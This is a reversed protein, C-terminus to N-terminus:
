SNKIGAVSHFGRLPEHLDLSVQRLALLDYPDLFGQIVLMVDASSLCRASSSEHTVHSAAEMGGSTIFAPHFAQQDAQAM